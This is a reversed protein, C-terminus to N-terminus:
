AGRQLTDAANAGPPVGEPEDREDHRV